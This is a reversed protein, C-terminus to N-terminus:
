ENKDGKDVKPGSPEGEPKQEFPPTLAKDQKFEDGEDKTPPLEIIERAENRTMVGQQYGLTSRKMLDTHSEEELPAFKLLPIQDVSVAVGVLELHRIFLNQVAQAAVQQLRKIANTSWTSANYTAAFTSGREQGAASRPVQLVASIDGNVMDLFGSNDPITNKLDVHHMEVYSPLIPIQDARLGELLEAVENMIHVLRERQEDPDTIHEIASM